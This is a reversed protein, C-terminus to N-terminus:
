FDIYIASRAAKGARDELEKWLRGKLDEGEGRGWKKIWLRLFYWIGALSNHRQSWNDDLEERRTTSDEAVFNLM